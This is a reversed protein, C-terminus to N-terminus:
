KAEPLLKQPNKNYSKEIANIKDIMSSGRMFGALITKYSGNLMAIATEQARELKKIDRRMSKLKRNEPIENVKHLLENKSRIMNALKVSIKGVTQSQDMMEEIQEPSSCIALEELASNLPFIVVEEAPPKRKILSKLSM